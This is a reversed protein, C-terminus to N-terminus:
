QLQTLRPVDAGDLVNSLLILTRPGAIGDVLLGQESQFRRLAKDLAADYRAPETPLTSGPLEALRERLWAIAAPPARRSIMRAGSPPMRWLMLYEGSWREDLSAIPVRVAGDGDALV